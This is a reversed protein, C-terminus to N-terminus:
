LHDLVESLPPTKDQLTKTWSVYNKLEKDSVNEVIVGRCFMNYSDAGYKGIGPLDLPDDFGDLFTQSMKVITKARRNHLGIPRLVAAILEPLAQSAHEPDPWIQFFKELIPIAQKASTQNLLIVAVLLKWPEDRLIEQVLLYPSLQRPISTM